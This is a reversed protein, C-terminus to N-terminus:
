YNFCRFVYDAVPKVVYYSFKRCAILYRVWMNHM